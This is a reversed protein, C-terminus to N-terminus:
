EVNSEGKRFAVIRDVFWEREEGPGFRLAVRTVRSGPELDLSVTQLVYPHSRLKLLIFTGPVPLLRFRASLPIVTEKGDELQIRAEVPPAEFPDKAGRVGIDLRIGDAEVPPGSLVYDAEGKGGQLFVACSAQNMGQRARESIEPSFFYAGSDLPLMGEKWDSFGAATISWGPAGASRPDADEEFDALPIEGSERWRTAYVTPPLWGRGSRWDKLLGRYAPQMGFSAEYFATVLVLCVRQQAEPTLLNRKLTPMENWQEAWTTNFYGHIAGYIWFGARFHGPEPAGRNIFRSAFDADVDGDASGQLSLYDADSFMLPKQSARYQGEIPALSVVGRIALRPEFSYSADDPYIGLENFVAATVAAEGGRSHGMIGIREADVLGHIPAAPDSSQRILERVHLLILAARADNERGDSSRNLFNEDISAFVIGRTALHKGLYDYGFESPEESDHNGHVCVVLPFPGPGEPYWVKGNLPVATEDYGWFREDVRDYYRSRRILYDLLRPKGGEFFASIDATETVVALNKVAYEPRRPNRAGGYLYSRATFPGNAAPDPLSLAAPASADGDYAKRAEQPKFSSCAAASIVLLAAATLRIIRHPTM